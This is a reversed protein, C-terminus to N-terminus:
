FGKLVVGLFLVIYALVVFLFTNDSAIPISTLSGLIGLVFLVVSIWFALNTPRTLRM